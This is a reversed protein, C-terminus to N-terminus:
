KRIAQEMKALYTNGESITNYTPSLANHLEIMITTLEDIKEQADKAWSHLVEENMTERYKELTM